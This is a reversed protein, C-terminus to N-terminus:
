RGRERRRRPTAARRSRGSWGGAVMTSSAGSQGSGCSRRPGRYRAVHATRGARDPRRAVGPWPRRCTTSSARSGNSGAGHARCSRFQSSPLRWCGWYYEAHRRRIAPAEGSAELRELGDERITELMVFRPEGTRQDTQQLLSQDVLAALRDLVPSASPPGGDGDEEGAGFACVAEAAELTCGGAFVALRRLLRQEGASLLDHSWALAARLTQHRAPRDRAGGTLLDLRSGLRALIAQPPLVKVRAAALELALPLGDLRVCVEAVAPANQATLRSTPGSRGRGSWWCRWRRCGAGAGRTLSGRSTRCRWRRRGPVRARRLRAAAGPQDGAGHARPLGGAARGRGPGGCCTSATTWCWCCGGTACPRRCARWSRDAASRGSASPRRSPRSSWSPTACRRWRCSSWGTRSGRSRARSTTRARRRAASWRTPSRWPWAPRASARARRGPDAPPGRAGAARRPRRGGRGRPRDAPHAAGAPLTRGRRRRVARLHLASGCGCPRRTGGAARAM